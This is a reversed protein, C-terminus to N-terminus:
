TQKFVELDLLQLKLLQKTKTETLQIASFLKM